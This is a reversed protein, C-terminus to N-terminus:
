NRKLRRKSEFYIDQTARALDQLSIASGRIEFEKETREYVFYPELERASLLIVRLRHQDQATRCREIEEQTFSTTKSFIIFPDIRKRPLADAVRKMNDVDQDTIEQRTKAEGIAMQIKGQYAEDVIVFDVECANIPATIPALNTGTTFIHESSLVTDIQQLTLAVPISGQQHDDSGFLGSRRYAWDRDRLQPTINFIKGCYECATQTSSQDLSLWFELECSPCKLNLGVRFVGKKLLYVFADEPRLKGGERQEIYLHEYEEFHPQHTQQDNQGITQIAGSRTFTKLPGYKEILERVGRIKFVRCGQLGGMLGILRSAIRGPQSTEAKIGFASFINSIVQRPPLAHIQLTERTVETIIALGGPESRAATSRFYGERGYYQNIEPVFPFTFVPEDSDSHGGFSRVSVVAHQGHFEAEPYFPKKPLQFHVTPTQMSTSVSGLVPQQEDIHMLAPRANLGNWTSERVAYMAVNPGFDTLVVQTNEAHWIAVREKVGEPDESRENLKAVWADKLVRLRASQVPDYFILEIDMARLNWFNVIDSFSGADGVYVGPANWSPSRDWELRYSCLNSPTIIGHFEHPVPADAAILVRQGKLNQVVFDAYDKGIEDKPPYSGFMALLANALPDASEWEFFRTVIQPTDGTKLKQIFEEFLHRIPHYIDLFTAIRRTWGGGFLGKDFAPWPLYPFRDIFTKLQQDDSAPYLVDVCFLEILSDALVSNDGIPIIPNHRGGWLTHTLRLVKRVDDFNDQRVCWGFRVPRYRIRLNLADM